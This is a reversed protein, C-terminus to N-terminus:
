AVVGCLELLRRVDQDPLAPPTLTGPVRGFAVTMTEVTVIPPRWLELFLPGDRSLGSLASRSGSVGSGM